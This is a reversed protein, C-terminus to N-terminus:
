RRRLEDLRRVDLFPLFMVTAVTICVYLGNFMEQLGLIQVGRRGAEEIMPLHKEVMANRVDEVSANADNLPNSMQILGCRVNRTM